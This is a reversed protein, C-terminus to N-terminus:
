RALIEASIAAQFNDITLPCRTRRAACDIYEEVPSIVANLQTEGVPESSAREKDRLLDIAEGHVLALIWLRTRRRLLEFDKTLL